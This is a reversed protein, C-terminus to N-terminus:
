ILDYGYEAAIEGLVASLGPHDLALHLRPRTVVCSAAREFLAVNHCFLRPAVGSPVPDRPQGRMSSPYLVGDLALYDEYIARAWAETSSPENAASLAMSAGARTSWSGRLDLLQIQRRLSLVALWPADRVRDITATGQFAEVRATVGDGAAYLIAREVAAGPPPVHHDFRGQSLSGLNPLRELHRRSL